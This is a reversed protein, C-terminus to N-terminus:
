YSTASILILNAGDFAFSLMAAGGAAISISSTARFGTWGNLTVASSTNSNYVRLNVRDGPTLYTAADACSISTLNGSINIYQNVFLASTVLLPFSGSTVQATRNIETTSCRRQSDVIDWGTGNYRIKLVTGYGKSQLGNITVTTYRDEIILTHERGLFGLGISNVTTAVTNQFKIVRQGGYPLITTSGDNSVLIGNEIGTASAGSKAKNNPGLILGEITNNMLGVNAQNGWICNDITMRTVSDLRIGQYRSLNYPMDLILSDLNSVKQFNSYSANLEGYRVVAGASGIGNFNIIRTDYTGLVTASSMNYDRSYVRVSENNSNITSDNISWCDQIITGTARSYTTNGNINDSAVVFAQITVYYAKCRLFTVNKHKTVFGNPGHYHNCDVVLFNGISNTNSPNTDNAEILVGHNNARTNVREIIGNGTNPTVASIANTGLSYTDVSLDSIIFGNAGSVSISSKLLTGSGSWTSTNTDFIQGGSGSLRCGSLVKLNNIIYTGLGLRVHKANTFLLSASADYVVEPVIGFWAIDAIAKDWIREWRFNAGSAVIGGDDIATTLYGVFEGGGELGDKYYSKLIVRQGEYAPTLKRLADFSEIKGVQSYGTPDAVGGVAKLQRSTPLRVQENDYGLIPNAVGDNNQYQLVWLKAASEYVFFVDGSTTGNLGADVSLFANEFGLTQRLDNIKTSKTFPVGASTKANIPVVDNEKIVGADGLESIKIGISDSTKPM